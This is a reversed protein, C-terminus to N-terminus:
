FGVSLQAGNVGGIVPQVSVDGFKPALQFFKLTRRESPATTPGPKKSGVEPRQNGVESKLPSVPSFSLEGRGPAKLSSGGHPDEASRAPAVFVVKHIAVGMHRVAAPKREGANASQLAIGAALGLGAVRIVFGSNRM